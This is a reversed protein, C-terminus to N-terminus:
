LDLHLIRLAANLLIKLLTLGLKLHHDADHSLEKDTRSVVLHVSFPVAMGLSAAKRTSSVVLQSRAKNGEELGESMGSTFIRHRGLNRQEFLLQMQLFPRKRPHLWASAVAM